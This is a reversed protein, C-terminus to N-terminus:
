IHLPGLVKNGILLLMQPGRYYLPFVGTMFILLSVEAVSKRLSCNYLPRSCIADGWFGPLCIFGHKLFHSTYMRDDIRPIKWSIYLTAVMKPRFNAVAGGLFSSVRKHTASRSLVDFDWVIITTSVLHFNTTAYEPLVVFIM